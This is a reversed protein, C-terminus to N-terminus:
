TTRVVTLTGTASGPATAANFVLPGGNGTLFDNLLIGTEARFTAAGSPQVGGNTADLLLKTKSSVKVGAGVHIDNNGDDTSSNDMDGDLM